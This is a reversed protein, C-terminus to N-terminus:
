IGTDTRPDTNQVKEGMEGIQQDAWMTDRLFSACVGLKFNEFWTKREKLFSLNGTQPHCNQPHTHSLRETMDLEKRGWPSYM